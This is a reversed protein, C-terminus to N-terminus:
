RGYKNLNKLFFFVPYNKSWNWDGMLLFNSYRSFIPTKCNKQFGAQGDLKRLGRCPYSSKSDMVTRQRPDAYLCAAPKGQPISGARSARQDLGFSVLMCLHM